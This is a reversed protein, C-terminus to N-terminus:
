KEILYFLRNVFAMGNMLYLGGKDGEVVTWVKNPEASRVAQLDKSHTEFRGIGDETCDGEAVDTRWQREGLIKEARKGDFPVCIDKKM